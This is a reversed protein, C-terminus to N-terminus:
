GTLKRVLTLGDGVPLVCAAVRPDEAIKGNLHRIAQTASDVQQSDVVAGHWLTNDILILGGSRTLTLALEYYRDYAEKDADIFVFDFTDTEGNAILAELTTAAPGLRLEIRGLVGARAWYRQAIAATHADIDCAILRGEDGIGLAVVTSSYGTYVGIELCRRAGILEVLWRMFWGQLAGIQMNSDSREATERRLEALLAPEKSGVQLLYDELAASMAITRSTM